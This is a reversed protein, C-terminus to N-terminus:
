FGGADTSGFGRPRYEMAESVHLPSIVESGDLDAITRAVRIIRHYGRASLKLANFARKLLAKAGEEMPCYADIGSAPIEANFRLRTGEFRAAQMKRAEVVHGRIEASSISEQRGATGSLEEYTVAQVELFLDMRDILAQSVRNKYATIARESCRCRNMDPFFGCPCPNMAAILLFNAPFRYSGKVRSIVIERDELPQRLIELAGRAFEPMEDLFLVGRHALTLEGPHPISGGGALAAASMTHHPARFPRTEMMPRGPKLLGAVSYIQSIELSEELSLPPLITPIRRAIMTKGAGPPGELMLNHFGAVAVEACRKMKRQGRIDSFDVTYNNLEPAPSEEDEKPRAGTQLYEIVEPLSKAGVVDLGQVIRGEAANLAPVIIKKIGEEKARMAIPLVGTVPAIEGNLSLEGVALVGDLSEQPIRKDAALIGLAIPLDFRSGSKLVDAPSFNITIRKPPTSFGVNKLATRVRDEAERVQNTVFGVMRFQPLGDSVDTEVHVPIISLGSIAASM